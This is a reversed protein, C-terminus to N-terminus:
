FCKFFYKTIIIGISGGGFLGAILYATASMDKRSFRIIMWLVLPLLMLLNSIDLGTPYCSGIIVYFILLTAGIYFSMAEAVSVSKETDYFSILEQYKGVKEVQHNENTNEKIESKKRNKKNNM